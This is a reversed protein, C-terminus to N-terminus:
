VSQAARFYLFFGLALSFPLGAFGLAGTAAGEVAALLMDQYTKDEIVAKIDYSRVLCVEDFTSIAPGRVSLKAIVGAKSITMRSAQQTLKHFGKEAMELTKQIMEWDSMSAQANTLLKKLFTPVIRGVANTLKKFGREIAGPKTFDEFEKQLEGIRGQERADLIPTPYIRRKM